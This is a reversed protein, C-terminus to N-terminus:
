LLDFLLITRVANGTKGGCPDGALLVIKELFEDPRGDSRVINIMADMETVGARHDTQGGCQAGSGHGIGDLIELLCIDKQHGSAVGCFGMRYDSHQQPIAGTEM